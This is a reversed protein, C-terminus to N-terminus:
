PANLPLSRSCSAPEHSAEISVWNITVIDSSKYKDVGGCSSKKRPIARQSRGRAGPTVATRAPTRAPLPATAGQCQHNRRRQHDRTSASSTFSVIMSSLPPSPPPTSAPARLFFCLSLAGYHGLPSASSFLHASSRTATCRDLSSLRVIPSFVVCFPLFIPPTFVLSLSSPFPLPSPSLTLPFCRQPAGIVRPCRSRRGLRLLPVHLHGLVWKACASQSCRPPHRPHPPPSPRPSHRLTLLHPITPACHCRTFVSSSTPPRHTSPLPGTGNAIESARM